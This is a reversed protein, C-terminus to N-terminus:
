VHANKDGEIVRKLEHTYMHESMYMFCIGILILYVGLQDFYLVVFGPIAILVGIILLITRTYFNNLKM